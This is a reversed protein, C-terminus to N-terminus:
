AWEERRQTGDLGFHHTRPSISLLELGRLLSVGYLVIGGELAAVCAEWAGEGGLSYLRMMERWHRRGAVQSRWSRAGGDVGGVKVKVEQGELCCTSMDGIPFLVAPM